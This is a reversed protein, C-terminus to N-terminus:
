LQLGKLQTAIDINIPYLLDPLYYTFPPRKAIEPLKHSILLLFHIIIRQCKLSTDHFETSKRLFYVPHVCSLGFHRMINEWRTIRGWIVVLGGDCGLYYKKECLVYKSYSRRPNLSLKYLNTIKKSRFISHYHLRCRPSYRM